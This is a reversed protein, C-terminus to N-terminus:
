TAREPGVGGRNFRFALLMAFPANLCRPSAFCVASIGDGGHFRLV